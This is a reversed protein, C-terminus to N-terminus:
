TGAGRVLSLYLDDMSSAQHEAKLTALEGCAMLRARHLVAVRRCLAEVDSLIHSSFVVTVGRKGALERLM